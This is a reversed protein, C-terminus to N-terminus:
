LLLFCFFTFVKWTFYNMLSNYYGYPRVKEKQNVYNLTNWLFISNNKEAYKLIEEAEVVNGIKIYDENKDNLNNFEYFLILEKGKFLFLDGKNVNLPFIKMSNQLETDMKVSLPMHISNYNDKILKSKLPLVSILEKSIENETLNVMFIEEGILIYMKDKDLVDISLTNAIYLLLLSLIYRISM